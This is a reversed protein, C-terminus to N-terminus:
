VGYIMRRRYGGGAQAAYKALAHAVHSGDTGLYSRLRALEEHPLARELEDFFALELESLWRRVTEYATVVAGLERRARGQAGDLDGIAFIVDELEFFRRIEDAMKQARTQGSRGLAVSGVASRYHEAGFALAESLTRRVRELEARLTDKAELRDKWPTHTALKLQINAQEKQLEVIRWTVLALGSEKDLKFVNTLIRQTAKIPVDSVSM